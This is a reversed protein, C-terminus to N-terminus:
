RTGSKVFMKSRFTNMRITKWDMQLRTSLGKMHMKIVSLIKAHRFDFSPNGPLAIAVNDSRGRQNYRVAYVNITGDSRADTIHEVIEAM